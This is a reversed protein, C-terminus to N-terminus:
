SIAESRECHYLSSIAMRRGTSQSSVIIKLTLLVEINNAFATSFSHSYVVFNINNIFDNSL